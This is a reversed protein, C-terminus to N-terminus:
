PVPDGVDVEIQGDSLRVPFARLRFGEPNVGCGTTADFTWDHKTCTLVRGDLRGESLPVGQHACRDHYAYVCGEVNALLVGVGAVRIGTMEGMWLDREPLVARFAM